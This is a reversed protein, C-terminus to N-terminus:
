AHEKETINNQGELYVCMYSIVKGNKEINKIRISSIVHKKTQITVQYNAYKGTQPTSLVGSQTWFILSTQKNFIYLPTYNRPLESAM